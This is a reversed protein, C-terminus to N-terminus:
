FISQVNEAAKSVLPFYIQDLKVSNLLINAFLTDDMFLDGAFLDILYPFVKKKKYLLDLVLELNSIIKEKSPQVPYLEKGYRYLYCYECKQNCRPSFILELNQQSIPMYDKLDGNEIKGRNQALFLGIFNDLLINEEDQFTKAM